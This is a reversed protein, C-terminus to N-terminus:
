AGLGAVVAIAYRAPAERDVRLNATHVSAESDTMSQTSRAEARGHSYQLSCTKEDFIHRVMGDWVCWVHAKMCQVPGM